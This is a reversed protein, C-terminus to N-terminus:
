SQGDKRKQSAGERVLIPLRAVAAAAAAPTAEPIMPGSVVAAEVLTDLMIAFSMIASTTNILAHHVPLLPPSPTPPPGPSPAPRPLCSSQVFDGAFRGRLFCLM